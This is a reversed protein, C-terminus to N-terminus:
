STTPLGIPQLDDGNGHDLPLYYQNGIAATSVTRAPGQLNDALTFSVDLDLITGQSISMTFLDTALYQSASNIWFGATSKSPPRSVVTFSETIGGPTTQDWVFDPGQNTADCHWAVYVNAGNSGSAAGGAPTYFIVRNVKFSGAWCRLSSNTVVGIGGIAGFVMGYTIAKTSGANSFFRFVHHCLPSLQIRPIQAKGGSRQKGKMWEKVNAANQKSFVGFISHVNRGAPSRLYETVPLMKKDTANAQPSGEALTVWDEAVTATFGLRKSDSELRVEGEPKEPPKLPPRETIGVARLLTTATVTSRKSPSQQAM